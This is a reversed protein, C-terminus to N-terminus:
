GRCYEKVSQIIDPDVNPDFKRCFLLDTETLEQRDSMRFVYPDGRKWDIRRMIAHYDDDMPERYRNEKYPSGMLLTQLFIEDACLTYHFVRKVWAEHAVVYRAFGDTISFWQAGLYFDVDRNRNIGICKQCFFSASNIFRLPFASVRRGFREQFLHYYRVRGRGGTSDFQPSQFHVFEKGDHRDFFDHIANQPKLPLDQGSLLHYYQYQQVSVAKELLRIETLVLSEGGWQVSTREIHFVRSKRVSHEVTQVDYDRCKIDMHIFLDNRDNDLMELLTKFCADDRHAIILYAHKRTNMPHM